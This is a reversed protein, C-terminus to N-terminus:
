GIAEDDDFLDAEVPFASVSMHVIAADDPAGDRTAAIYPRILADLQEGLADLEAASIRLGYVNQGSAQRWAPRLRHRRALFDRSMRQERQLALAAYAAAAEGAGDDAVAFGTILARWPRERADGTDGESSDTVLGHSALVRLHYSCNSPSDGVARACVSATAPGTSMLYSLLDLRLPHSLARVQASDVIARRNEQM